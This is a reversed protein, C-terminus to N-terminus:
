CMFLSHIGIVQHLLRSLGLELALKENTWFSWYVKLYTCIQIIFFLSIVNQVTM